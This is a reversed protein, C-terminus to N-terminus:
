SHLIIINTFFVSNYRFRYSIRNSPMLQLPIPGEPTLLPVLIGREGAM